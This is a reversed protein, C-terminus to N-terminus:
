VYEWHLGRTTKYRHLCSSSVTGASVGTAKAAEAISRYEQGTEVCRVRKRVIDSDPAGSRKRAISDKAIDEDSVFKWHFGNCTRRGYYGNAVMRIRDSVSKDGEAAEISSAFIQNTEICLIPKAKHGLNRRLINSAHLMNESQTAWELNELRNDAKNGNKHNVQPKNEPNPIFTVAVLRHVLARKCTGFRYLGVAFYGYRNKGQKLIVGKIKINKDKGRPNKHVVTRDLSKIRGLSSAQYKGEYGPIDKWIEEPM